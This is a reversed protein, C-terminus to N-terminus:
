RKDLPESQQLARAAEEHGNAAARELWKKAQSENGPVGTGNRYAMGLKYQARTNGSEAAQKWWYVAQEPNRCTRFEYAGLITQAPAYGQLAAKYWCAAAKKSDQNVGNEQMYAWGQSYDDLSTDRGTWIFSAASAAPILFAWPLLYRKSIPLYKFLLMLGIGICLGAMASLIDMASLLSPAILFLLLSWFANPMKWIRWAPLVLSAGILGFSAAAMPSVCVAFDRVPPMWVLIIGCAAFSGIIGCLFYFLLFGGRGLISPLLPAVTLLMLANGVLLVPDGTMFLGTFFRWWEQQGICSWGNPLLTDKGDFDLNLRESPLLVFLLINVVLLLLPLLYDSKPRPKCDWCKAAPQWPSAMVSKCRFTTIYRVPSDDSITGSSRLAQMEWATLLGKPGADPHEKYLYKRM